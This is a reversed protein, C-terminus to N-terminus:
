SLQSNAFRRDPTSLDVGFRAAMNSYLQLSIIVTGDALRSQRAFDEAMRGKGVCTPYFKKGHYDAVVRQLTQSTANLGMFNRYAAFMAADSRIDDAIRRNAM